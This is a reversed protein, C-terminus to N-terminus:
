CNAGTAGPGNPMWGGWRWPLSAIPRKLILCTVIAAMGPSWMVGTVMLLSSVGQHIMIGDFVASFAMTLILFILIARWAAGKEESSIGPTTGANM